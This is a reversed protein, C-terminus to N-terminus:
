NSESMLLTIKITSSKKNLQRLTGNRDGFCKMLGLVIFQFEANFGELCDLIIEKIIPYCYISSSFLFWLFDFVEIDGMM